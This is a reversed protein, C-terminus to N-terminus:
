IKIEKLDNYNIGVKIHIPIDKFIEIIQKILTQGELPSFDFLFSDYTYLILKTQKEKLLENLRQLLNANFETELNQLMYNFVKWQNLGQELVMPKEFLFTKLNGSKYTKFINRSVNNISKFPEIELLDRDIGGYIQRFTYDKPNVDKPYFKLLEEYVNEPFKQNIMLYILYLHFGSLDIEILFGKNHRSIFRSRSGDSKNLAAYNINNFHNSPRGTLTFPNYECHEFNNNSFLGNKEIEVLDNILQNYKIFSETLEFEDFHILFEDKVERCWELWKMIPICDNINEKNSFQVQYSRIINSFQVEIKKNVNFWSVLNAEFNGTCDILYKSNLIYNDKGLFENLRLIEVNTLDNHNFGLIFEEDTELNLGYIFSIRNQTWHKFQDSQIPIIFKQGKPIDELKELWLM